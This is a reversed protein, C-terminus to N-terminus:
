APARSPPSSRQRWTGTLMASSTLKKKRKKSGRLSQEHVCLVWLQRASDVFAVHSGGPSVALGSRQCFGDRTLQVPEGIGSAPLSWLEDEGSGAGIAVLTDENLFEVDKSNFKAAGAM